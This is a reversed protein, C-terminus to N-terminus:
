VNVSKGSAASELIADIIRLTYVGEELTVIQKSEARVAKVFREDQEILPERKPIAWRVVDGESVGRFQAIQDWELRFTGNAYYTIDSTLTDAVLAGREGTVVMTREKFPSLWNVVHNVIIGNDIEGTVVVMDEHPRNSRLSSRAYIQKYGSNTVFATADVDHTAIDKVCGVDAIRGPFPGQRRTQVQYVEGLFGEALRKKIEVLAPNCREVYGVAGIINKSAFALAIKEGGAVTQAIPKEMLTNVGADAIALGVEEHLFTPVACIALDIDQKLLDELNEYVPVGDAVQFRDGDRDALGILEVGALNRLIRVHHRGMSGLGVVAARLKQETTM